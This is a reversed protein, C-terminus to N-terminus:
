GRDARAITRVLDHLTDRLADPLQHQFEDHVLRLGQYERDSLMVTGHDLEGAALDVLVASIEQAGDMQFVQTLRHYIAAGTEGLALYRGLIEASERALAQLHATTHQRLDHLFADRPTM